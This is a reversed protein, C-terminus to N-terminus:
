RNILQVLRASIINKYRGYYQKKTKSNQVPKHHQKKRKRKKSKHGHIRKRILVRIRTQKNKIFKTSLPTSTKSGYFKKKQNIKHRSILIRNTKVNNIKKIFDPKTNKNYPSYYIMFNTSPQLSSLKNTKSIGLKDVITCKNTLSNNQIRKTKDILYSADTGYKKTHSKKKNVNM